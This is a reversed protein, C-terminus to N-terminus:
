SCGNDDGITDIADILSKVDVGSKAILFTSYRELFRRLCQIDYLDFESLGFQLFLNYKTQSDLKM